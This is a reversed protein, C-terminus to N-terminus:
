VDTACTVSTYRAAHVQGLFPQWTYPPLHFERRFRDEAELTRAQARAAAVRAALEAAILVVLLLLWVVASTM